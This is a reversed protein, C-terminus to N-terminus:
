MGRVRERGKSGEMWVREARKGCLWKAEEREGRESEIRWEDLAAVIAPFVVKNFDPVYMPLSGVLAAETYHGAKEAAERRIICNDPLSATPPLSPSISPPRDSSGRDQPESGRQVRMANVGQVGM